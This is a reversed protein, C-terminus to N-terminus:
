VNLEVSGTSSLLAVYLDYFLWKRMTDMIDDVRGKTCVILKTFVSDYVYALFGTDM